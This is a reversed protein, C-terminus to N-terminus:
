VKVTTARIALSASSTASWSSSPPSRLRLVFPNYNVELSAGLDRPTSGPAVKRDTLDQGSCFARGAGTLLMARISRDGGIRALAERLEAHMVDNFANLREPRNLTLTAVAESVELVISQFAASVARSRNPRDPHNASRDTPSDYAPGAASVLPRLQAAAAHALDSIRLFPLLCCPSM